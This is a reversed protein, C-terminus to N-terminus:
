NRKTAILAFGSALIALTLFSGELTSVATRTKELVAKIIANKVVPKPNTKPIRLEKLHSLLLEDNLSVPPLYEALAKRKWYGATGPLATYKMKYLMARVHTPKKRPVNSVGMLRLVAPDSQLLRFALASVWKHKDANSPAAEWFQFDLRPFYPGAMSLSSNAPGPKYVFPFETWPGEASNAHEMVVELRESRMKILHKGYQNVVRYPTVQEYLNGLDTNDVKTESLVRRLPVVSLSLLTLCVLMFLSTKLCNFIKKLTSKQNRITENSTMENLFTGLIGILCM